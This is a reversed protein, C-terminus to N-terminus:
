TNDKTNEEKKDIMKNPEVPPTIPMSGTLSIISEPLFSATRMRRHIGRAHEKENKTVEADIPSTM